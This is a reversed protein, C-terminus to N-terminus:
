ERPKREPKAKCSKETPCVREGQRTTLWYQLGSERHYPLPKRCTDCRRETKKKAM